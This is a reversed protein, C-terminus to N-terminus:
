LTVADLANQIDRILDDTDEIGVSLRILSDSIGLKAREEVPVSAHTMIAPHDVLSEVGGLSEACAFLEVTELFQRAQDIGGKLFFTVMGGFGNMQKVALDHYKYDELGPYIVSEVKDSSQLAAVVAKANEEHQRMRLHLTKVGRLALWSDFPSPISGVSNQLYKIKQRLEEDNGVIIGMVVDSHGNIFKTVSHVVLDAGHDMPNQFYPSMFTNDVVFVLNNRKAVESIAAIDVMKLTPNTPSEAWIIKTNENIAAEVAEIDAFDIFKFTIGFKAAITTFYRRTGGYVDDISLVEDGAELTQIITSTAALGSSFAAGWNAHELAAICDEFANRTPNATRAYEFGGPYFKGPSEQLFTTSLSIPTILAGTHADPTYGAHIANTGFKYDSPPHSLSM